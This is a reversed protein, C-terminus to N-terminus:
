FAACASIQHGWKLNFTDCAVMPWKELIEQNEVLSPPIIKKMVSHLHTMIDTTRCQLIMELNSWMQSIESNIADYWYHLKAKSVIFRTIEGLCTQM